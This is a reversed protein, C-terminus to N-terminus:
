PIQNIVALGSTEMATMMGTCGYALAESVVCSDFSGLGLGGTFLFYNLFM